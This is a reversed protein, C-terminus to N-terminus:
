PMFQLSFTSGKGEESEVFLNGKHLLMIQKSLTLGVGSGSKKTTFFPTFIQEQIDPSMGRGNDQIKIFVHDDRKLGAISIYPEACDKVAEMANLLLNILAQEVLNIDARLVLRTDKLIIDLDINKQLLTPELLQYISEFLVKLQIDVFNPEDVKNILRYSKAFQLLGESRRKITYIGLKLDEIDEEGYGQELRAHLTEALSSIPAISNMIEHTLVRLLKHWARTETEDIAESINQYVVIRFTGEQTSFTSGHMLLKIKGMAFSVSEVQQKGLKMHITKEYLEPHRKTLGHINGIHPTRFLQKFADNIWMVKGTDEQYFIIASDLMNLVKNLYQHQIEKDMSIRKYVENIANFAAFLRGEASKPNRIVFRRTFDRYRVAESFDLLEKILKRQKGLWRFGLLLLVIFSVMAPLYWKLFCLYAIGVAVFLLFLVKWFFFDRLRGM